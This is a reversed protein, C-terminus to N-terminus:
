PTVELGAEGLSEWRRKADLCQARTATLLHRGDQTVTATEYCSLPFIAEGYLGRAVKEMADVSFYRRRIEEYHDPCGLMHDNPHRQHPPTNYNM